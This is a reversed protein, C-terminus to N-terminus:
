EKDISCVEKLFTMQEDSFKNPVEHLYDEISEKFLNNFIDEYSFGATADVDNQCRWVVIYITKSKDATPTDHFFVETRDDEIWAQLIERFKIERETM